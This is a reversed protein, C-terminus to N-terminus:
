REAKTMLEGHAQQSGGETQGQELPWLCPPLGAQCPEDERPSLDTFLNVFPIVKFLPLAVYFVLHSTPIQLLPLVPLM